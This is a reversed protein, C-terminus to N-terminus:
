MFIFVPDPHWVGLHVKESGFGYQMDTTCVQPSRIEQGKGKIDSLVPPHHTSITWLNPSFWDIMPIEGEEEEEEEERRGAVRGEGRPTSEAKSVKCLVNCFIVPLYRISDVSGINKFHDWSLPTPKFGRSSTGWYRLYCHIKEHWARLQDRGQLIVEGLGGHNERSAKRSWREGGRAAM